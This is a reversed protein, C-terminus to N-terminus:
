FLHTYGLYVQNAQLTGTHLPYPYASGRTKFSTSDLNIYRYGVSIREHLMNTPAHILHFSKSVGCGVQYSFNVNSHDAFPLLPPYGNNTDAMEQYDSLRNWAPGVGVNVFPSVWLNDWSLQMEAMLRTSNVHYKYTYLTSSPDGEATEVLWGQYTYHHLNTYVGLGFAFSPQWRNGSFEYGLNLGLEPANDQKHKLPYVDTILAGSLYAIEPTQNMRAFSAALSVGSYIGAEASFVPILALCLTLCVYKNKYAKIM